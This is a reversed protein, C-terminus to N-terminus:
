STPALVADLEALREAWFEKMRTAAARDPLKGHQIAVLSKEPTKRM